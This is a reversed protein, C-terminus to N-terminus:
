RTPDDLEAPMIALSTSGLASTPGDPTQPAHLNYLTVEADESTVSRRAEEISEGILYVHAEDRRSILTQWADVGPTASAAEALRTATSELHDHTEDHPM